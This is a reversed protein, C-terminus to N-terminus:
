ASTRRRGFDSGFGRREGPMLYHRRWALVWLVGLATLSGAGVIGLVVEFTTVPASPNQLTM